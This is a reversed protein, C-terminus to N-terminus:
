LPTPALTRGLERGGKRSLPRLIPSSGCFPPLPPPLVARPHDQDWWPGPAARQRQRDTCGPPHWARAVGLGCIGIVGQDHFSHASPRASHGSVLFAGTVGAVPCGPGQPCQETTHLGSLSSVVPPHSCHGSGMKGPSWCASLSSRPQGELGGRRRPSVPAMAGEPCGTQPM